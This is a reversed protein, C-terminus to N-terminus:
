PSEDRMQILESNIFPSMFNFTNPIINFLGSKFDFRQMRVSIFGTGMGHNYNRKSSDSQIYNSDHKLPVKGFLGTM